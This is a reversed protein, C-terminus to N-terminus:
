LSLYAFFAKEAAGFINNEITSNIGLMQSFELGTATLIYSAATQVVFYYLVINDM